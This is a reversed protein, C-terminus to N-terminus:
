LVMKQVRSLLMGPIPMMAPIYHEHTFTPSRLGAHGANEVVWQQCSPQGRRVEFFFDPV